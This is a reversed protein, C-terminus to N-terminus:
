CAHVFASMVHVCLMGVHMCLIGVHLICATICACYAHASSGGPVAWLDFNMSSGM